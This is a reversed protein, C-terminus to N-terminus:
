INLKGRVLQSIKPFDKIGKKAEFNLLVGHKEYEKLLPQTKAEYENMRSEIVARTDDERIVLGGGCKDCCNPKKPLLPEMEYGDRHIDCINYTHGCGSCTRRGLLKEILIERNLEINLVLDVPYLAAYRKEQALTRPFGDLIVGKQSAPEKLKEQLIDFVIDDGVLKGAKVTEKVENVLTPSM